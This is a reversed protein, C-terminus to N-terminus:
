KAKCKANQKKPPEQMKRENQMESRANRPLNKYKRFTNATQRMLKQESFLIYKDKKAFSKAIETIGVTFDKPQNQEVNNTGCNLLNVENIKKIHFNVNTKCFLM